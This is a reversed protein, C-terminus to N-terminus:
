SSGLRQNTLALPQREVNGHLAARLAADTHKRAELGPGKDIVKNSPLLGSTGGGGGEGGKQGQTTDLVKSFTYSTQFQLGASLRRELSFRLSNYWSGGGATKLEIEDWNPNRRAQNAEWFLRGDSLVRPTTPNGEKTQYLNFGRSAAFAVSTVMQAPLRREVTLNYHIMHPQQLHYDIIRPSKGRAVEPIVPRPFAISTVGPTTGVTVTSGSSFPPSANANVQTAPAM